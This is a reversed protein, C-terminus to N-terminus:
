KREEFYKNIENLMKPTIKQKDYFEQPSIIKYDHEIFYTKHGYAFREKRKKLGINIGAEFCTHDYRYGDFLKETPLDGDCWKWGGLEYVRLLEHMEKYTTSVATNELPTLKLISNRKLLNELGERRTYIEPNLTKLVSESVEILPTM